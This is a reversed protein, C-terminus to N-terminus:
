FTLSPPFLMRPGDSSFIAFILRRAPVIPVTSDMKLMLRPLQAPDGVGTGVATRLSVAVGM